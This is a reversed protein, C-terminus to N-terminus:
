LPSFVIVIPHKYLCALLDVFYQINPINHQFPSDSTYLLCSGGSDGCDIGSGGDIGVLAIYGNGIVAITILNVPFQHVAKLSFNVFSDRICM